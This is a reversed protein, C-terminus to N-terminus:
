CRGGRDGITRAVRRQAPCQPKLQCTNCHTGTRPEYTRDKIDKFVRELKKKSEEIFSSDCSATIVNKPSFVPVIDVREIAHANKAVMGLVGSRAQLEYQLRLDSKIEASTKWEKLVVGGKRTEVIADVVGDVQGSNGQVYRYREEIAVTKASMQSINQVLELYARQMKALSKGSLKRLPSDGDILGKQFCQELLRRDKPMGGQLYYELAKHMRSGMSQPHSWNPLFRGEHYAAFKLPCQAYLNLHTAAVIPPAGFIAPATIESNAIQRKSRRISVLNGGFASLTEHPKNKTHVLILLDRARTAGVYALRSDENEDPNPFSRLGGKGLKMLLVVPFELGKAAHITMVQIAGPQSAVAPTVSVERDQTKKLAPWAERFSFSQPSLTSDLAEAAAALPRLVRMDEFNRNRLSRSIISKVRPHGYLGSLAKSPPWHLPEGITQEMARDARSSQFQVCLGHAQAKKKIESITQRDLKRSLIAIDAPKLDKNCSLIEKVFFLAEDLTGTRIDMGIIQGGKARHSRLLKLMGDRKLSPVMKGLFSHAANLIPQTSRFNDALYYKKARMKRVFWLINDTGAGRWEYIQQCPDGVVWMNRRKGSLMLLIEAQIRSTDQFEDVLMTSFQSSFENVLKKHHKLCHLFTRHLSDYDSGGLEKVKEFHRKIVQRLHSVKFGFGWYILEDLRSRIEREIERKKKGESADAHICKELLSVVGAKDAANTWSSRPYAFAQGFVEWASQLLLLRQEAEGILRATPMLGRHMAQQAFEFILADITSIRLKQAREGLREYARNYLEATAKRTFTTVLIRSPDINRNEVLYFIRETLTTTKGTGAGAIVCASGKNHIVAKKQEDTLSKM